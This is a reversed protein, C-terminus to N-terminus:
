REGRHREGRRVEGHEAGNMDGRRQGRYRECEGMGKATTFVKRM